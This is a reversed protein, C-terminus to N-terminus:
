AGRTLGGLTMPKGADRVQGVVLLLPDEVAAQRRGAGREVDGARLTLRRNKPLGFRRGASVDSFRTTLATM